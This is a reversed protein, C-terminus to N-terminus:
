LYRHVCVFTDGGGGDDQSDSYVYDHLNSAGASSLCPFQTYITDEKGGKGEGAGMILNGKTEYKDISQYLTRVTGLCVCAHRSCLHRCAHALSCGWHAGHTHTLSLSCCCPSLLGRPLRGPQPAPPAQRSKGLLLLKLERRADRKDRRLQREIEDNIRRAEKAEESLCCAMISELTMRGLQNLCLGWGGFVCVCVGRVVSRPLCAGEAQSGGGPSLLALAPLARSAVGLSSSLCLFPGWWWCRRM